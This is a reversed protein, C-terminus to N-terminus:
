HVQFGVSPHGSAPRLFARSRDATLDLGGIRYWMHSLWDQYPHGQRWSRIFYWFMLLVCLVYAGCAARDLACCARRPQGLILGPV